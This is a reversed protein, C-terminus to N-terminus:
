AQTADGGGIFNFDEVVVELKSRNAEDQVWTHQKLRGKVLVRDGKKLYKALVEAPQAFAVCDIFDVGEKMRNVALSFQTVNTGDPTTRLDLERTVNGMIIVNNFGKSM